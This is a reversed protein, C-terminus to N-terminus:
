FKLTASFGITRPDGLSGSNAWYKEDTINSVYLRFTTDYKNELKTEYRIGLDATTYASIKETNLNDRWQSGTYYVGGNLYIKPEIPLRYEAYMKAQVKAIGTAEKGEITKEETKEVKPKIYTFGGMLTLNETAKGTALLEIGENIQEGDVSYSKDPNEYANAKEIRFLATSLLLDKNISYKAGIEYQKSVYPDLFEGAKPSEDPQKMGNELNEMYTVYTTLDQMPKYILSITPTLEDKDYGSTKEGSVNLRKTELKALNAGILASWQENFTINDGITLNTNYRKDSTFKGAPIGFNPKSFNSFDSVNNTTIWQWNNVKRGSYEYNAFSGGLIINNNVSGIDFNGDLYAFGGYNKTEYGGYKTSGVSKEGTTTNLTNFNYIHGKYDLYSYIFSSRVKWNENFNYNAKLEVKDSDNEIYTWDPAYSDKTDFDKASPMKGNINLFSLGTEKFERHSYYLGLDLNDTPKYALAVGLLKEENSNNEKVKDGDQYHVNVRISLKDTINQSTDVSTFYNEGGNNGISVKTFPKNTPYKLAYNVTGGINGSGYLFGSLGSIVEINDVENISLGGQTNVLPIGDILSKNVSFGRINTNIGGHSAIGSNATDQLVPNKKAIDNFNSSITNEIFDQPVVSM